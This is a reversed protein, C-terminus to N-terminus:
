ILSNTNQRDDTNRHINYCGLFGAPLLEFVNLFQQEKKDESAPLYMEKKDLEETSDSFYSSTGDDNIITNLKEKESESLIGAVAENYDKYIDREEKFRKLEEFTKEKSKEIVEPTIKLPPTEIAEGDTM